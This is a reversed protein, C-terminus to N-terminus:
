AGKSQPRLILYAGAIILPLSLVQGQTITAGMLNYIVEPERLYEIAFRIVGYGVGFLGSIFGVRGRARPSAWALSLVVFLLAGETLAEYIQTPHRPLDGGRPFVIAWCVDTVKGFLEGNIFNALRGFFLGITSASAIVDLFRLGNIKAFRCYLFAAAVFGVAAGHFAMGGRWTMIIEAPNNLYYELEYFFVHGLRGGLVIGAVVWPIFNDFFRLPIEAVYKKGLYYAYRWGLFIGVAYAVGYWHIKLPGVACVIPDINHFPIALM